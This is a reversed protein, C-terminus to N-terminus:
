NNLFRKRYQSPSIKFRKKFLRCFYLSDEIGLMDAIEYIMMDTEELLSISKDLLIYTRYKQPSLGTKSTFKHIFHAKSLGSMKAYEDNSLNKVPNEHIYSIVNDIRKDFSHNPYKLSFGIKSILSLLEGATEMETLEDLRPTFYRKTTNLCFTEFEEPHIASFLSYPTNEFIRQALNGSFHIWYMKTGKTKMTYSQKEGPHYLYMNGETVEKDSIIATGSKIYLLTYDSRGKPRETYHPSTDYDSWGCRNMRLYEESLFDSSDDYPNVSNHLTSYTISM